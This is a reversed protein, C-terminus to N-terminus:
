IQAGPCNLRQDLQFPTSVKSSGKTEELLLNGEFSQSESEKLLSNNYEEELKYVKVM